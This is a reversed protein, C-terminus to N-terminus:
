THRPQRMPDFAAFAIDPRRRIGIKKQAQLCGFRRGHRLKSFGCKQAGTIHREVATGIWIRQAQSVIETLRNDLKGARFQDLAQGIGFQQGRAPDVPLATNALQHALINQSKRFMHIRGVWGHLRQQLVRQNIQDRRTQRSLPRIPQFQGRWFLMYQQAGFGKHACIQMVGLKVAVANRGLDTHRHPAQVLDERFMIFRDASEDTPHTKLGHSGIEFVRSKRLLRDTLDSEALAKRVHLVKRCREASM